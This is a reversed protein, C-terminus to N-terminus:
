LSLSHKVTHGREGVNSSFSLTGWHGVSSTPIRSLSPHIQLQSCHAAWPDCFQTKLLSEFELSGYDSLKETILVTSTHVVCSPLQQLFLYLRCSCVWTPQDV